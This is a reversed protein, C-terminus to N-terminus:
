TTERPKANDGTVRVLDQAAENPESVEGEKNMLPYSARRVYTRVVALMSRRYRIDRPPALVTRSRDWRLNTVDRAQLDRSIDRVSRSWSAFSKKCRVTLLFLQSQM